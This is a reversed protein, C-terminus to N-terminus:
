TRNSKRDRIGGTRLLAISDPPGEGQSMSALHYLFGSEDAFLPRITEMRGDESPQSMPTWGWFEGEQDVVTLRGNGLDVLLTSDRPLFLVHDPQRYEQPGQGVGGLTDATGAEMDLKLLVQGLPDAALISGDALERVGSLYSFPHPYAIELELTAAVVDGSGGSGGGRGSCSAAGLVMAIVLVLGLRTRLFVSIAVVTFLPRRVLTRFAFRIDLLVTEM